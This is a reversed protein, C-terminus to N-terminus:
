KPLEVGAKALIASEKATPPASPETFQAVVTKIAQEQNSRMTAVFTVVAIILAVAPQVWFALSQKPYYAGVWNGVLCGAFFYMVIRSSQTKLLYM